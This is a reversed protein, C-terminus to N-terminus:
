PKKNKGQLNREISVLADLKQQLDDARKVADEARRQERLREASLKQILLVFQRLPSELPAVRRASGELLVQLKTDDRWAANPINMLLILKLRHTESKDRTFVQSIVQYERRMEEPSMALLTQYYGLLSAVEEMEQTFDPRVSTIPVEIVPQVSPTTTCGYLIALSGSVILVPVVSFVGRM